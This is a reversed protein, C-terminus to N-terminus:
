KLSNLWKTAEEETTFSAMNIYSGTYAAVAKAGPEIFLPLLLPTLVEVV